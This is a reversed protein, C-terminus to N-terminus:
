ATVSEEWLTAKGIKEPLVFRLTGGTRKKDQLVAARLETEPVPPTVPLGIAQFDERIRDAENRDMLGKEVALDAAMVIGIAVAEGHEYRTSCKEIAHGFTHGLNLLRRIGRDEPDEEVFGSKIEGARRVLQEPVAEPHPGRFCAVAEEYACNDALIFTKLMEAAGCLLERRPLTQLFDTDIYVFAPQRFTGVMNKFRDFNVGNKGGIAADVQALLTTPVLGFPLGRKYIAAVFGTLDTTIGGGVGILQTDRDAELELLQAILREATALTKEQESAQLWCIPCGWAELIGRGRFWDDAILIAGPRPFLDSVKGYILNNKM